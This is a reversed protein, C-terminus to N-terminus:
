VTSRNTFYEDQSLRYCIVFALLVISMGISNNIYPNFCSQLYIMMAATM